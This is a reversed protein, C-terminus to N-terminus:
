EARLAAVPDVLTARRAPLVGAALAVTLVVLAALGAIPAEYGAVGFLLGRGLRGFAFALTLGIAGGVLGMRLVRSLVLWRVQRRQAGLAIRIGLERLRQAVGYAIVAYLGIAALLLALGAFSSSLMALARDPATNQWVQDELTRLEVVPLNADLRGVLAPVAGALASTGAGTRAYFTLNGGFAGAQRYPFFIQPPVPERVTAYKADRVLGVIEIDPPGEDFGMALRTGIVGAEIGFTRAFAENVIAVRPSELGDTRTFDRGALLPIGLTQFYDTDTNSTSIVPGGGPVPTAGEIRVGNTTANNDSLVPITAASVSTVGPVARLSEAVQEFLVATREPAYGNLSPSLRFTVVGETTIGLEARALGALSTALLGAMGLLATALAIQGTALSTRVRMASRSGPTRGARTQLGGAVAARVGHVAPFLGFLVSTGLGLALSFLLVATDIEFAPLPTDAQPLLATLGGRTAQAVVLAGLGGLLGLVAAEILGLRVLQARSAGLSLRIATETSRDAARTLLLNAVNVSAIALVFGTVGFLLALALSISTRAAIRGRAGDILSVRREVFQARAQEGTEARLLPQEVDRLWAAYPVNLAEEARARPVGPDLRAFLYLWYSDNRSGLWTPNRGIREVLALPVFVDPRDLTTTGSFGEPGVGVVTMAEGNVVLTRGLVDPDTGFRTTWSRHSLVAVPAGARDDEPGILRGLTPPLGIAEFYRGSVLLGRGETTRGEFGLNIALDRHAALTLGSTDLRELERFLPHSFVAEARGADGTSTPGPRLGPAVVSVIGEPAPVPLRRLLLSDAVSFIASNVGIGLALSLVAVASVLPRARLARVAHRIDQIV